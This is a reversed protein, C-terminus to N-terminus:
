KLEVLPMYERNEGEPGTPSGKWIVKYYYPGIAVIYPLLPQGRGRSNARHNDPGGVVVVINTKTTTPTTTPERSRSSSLVPRHGGPAMYSLPHNRQM